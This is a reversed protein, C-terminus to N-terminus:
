FRKMFLCLVIVGLFVVPLFSVVDSAPVLPPFDEAIQVNSYLVEDVSLAYWTYSSGSYDRYQPASWASCRFSYQTGSDWFVGTISSNSVNFLQGNSYSLYGSQYSVPIFVDITGFQSTDLTLYCCGTLDADAPPSDSYASVSVCCLLLVCVVSFIRKCFVNM